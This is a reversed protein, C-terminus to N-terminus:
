ELGSAGTPTRPSRPDIGVTRGPTRMPSSSGDVADTSSRVVTTRDIAWGYGTWPIAYAVEPSGSGVPTRSSDGRSGAWQGNM